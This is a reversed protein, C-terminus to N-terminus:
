RRLQLSQKCFEAGVAGSCDCEHNRGGGFPSRDYARSAIVDLEVHPPHQNASRFARGAPPGYRKDTILLAREDLVRELVRLTHVALQEKTPLVHATVKPL